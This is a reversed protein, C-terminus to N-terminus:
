RMSWRSSHECVPSWPWKRRRAPPVGASISPVSSRTIGLRSSPPWRCRPGCPRGVVGSPANGACLAARGISRPCLAAMQKRTLRGLEPLDGLLTWTVVPGIGPVSQLLDEQERWLPSQRIAQDLDADVRKLERTLWALHVAIRKQVRRPSRSCRNQEAILMELLQRRRALLARLEVTAADPGPRVAPRVAAACRALVRADLGDTKALMGMAKGFARVQRPNVVAVPLQADALARM